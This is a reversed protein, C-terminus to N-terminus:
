LTKEKVDGLDEQTDYTLPDVMEVSNVQVEPEDNTQEIHQRKKYFRYGVYLIVFWVLLGVLLLSCTSMGTCLGCFM